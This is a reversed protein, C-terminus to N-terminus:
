KMWTSPSERWQMLTQQTAADIDGKEVALDILSSYNTLSYYPVGAAKFAEEAINFGYTFISVM